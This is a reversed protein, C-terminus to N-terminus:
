RGCALAIVPKAVGALQSLWGNNCAACVMKVTTTYPRASWQRPLRNRPGAHHISPELDLGIETLWDPLIHERTLDSSGCFVCQRAM